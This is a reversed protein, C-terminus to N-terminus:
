RESGVGRLHDLEPNRKRSGQFRPSADPYRHPRWHGFRGLSKPPFGELEDFGQIVLRIRVCHDLCHTSRNGPETELSQKETPQPCLRVLGEVIEYKGGL